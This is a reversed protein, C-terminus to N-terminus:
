LIRYVGTYYFEYNSTGAGAIYRLSIRNNVTDARIAACLGAQDPSVATGSCETFLSFNSAIPITIGVETAIGGATVDITCRGSFAVSDGVRLYNMDQVTAAAVNTVATITPTYQGDAFGLNTRAASASSAGTGGDTVPVDTGGARYIYGGSKTVTDSLDCTPNNDSTLTIFNVDFGGDVDYASIFFQSGGASLPKLRSTDGLEIDGMQQLQWGDGFINGDLKGHFSFTPDNGATLTAFTTFVGGDVDYAQFFLTDGNVQGTRIAGNDRINLNAFLPSATDKLDQQLDFTFVDALESIELGNTGNEFTKFELITGNKQKFNEFTGGGINSAGTVDGMGGGGGKKLIPGLTM